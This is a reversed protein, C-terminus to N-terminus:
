HKQSLQADRELAKNFIATTAAIILRQSYLSTADNDSHLLSIANALQTDSGLSVTGGLQDLHGAIKRFDLIANNALPVNSLDTQEPRLPNAGGLVGRTVNELAALSTRFGIIQERIESLHSVSRAAFVPLSFLLANDFQQIDRDMSRCYSSCVDAMPRAQEVMEEFLRTATETKASPPAGLSVLKLHTFDERIKELVQQISLADLGVKTISALRGLSSLFNVHRRYIQELTLWAGRALSQRVPELDHQRRVEVFLASLPAILVTSLIVGVGTTVLGDLFDLNPIRYLAEWAAGVLTLIFLVGWAVIFPLLARSTLTRAALSTWYRAKSFEIPETLFIV